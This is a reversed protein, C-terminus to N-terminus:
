IGIQSNIHVYFTYKIKNLFSSWMQRVGVTDSCYGALVLRILFYIYKHLYIKWTIVVYFLYM